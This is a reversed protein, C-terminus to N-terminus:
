QGEPGSIAPTPLMNHRWRINTNPAMRPEPNVGVRDHVAGLVTGEAGLGAAVIHAFEGGALDLYPGTARESQTLGYHEGTPTESGSSECGTM